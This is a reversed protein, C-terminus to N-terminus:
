DDGAAVSCEIEDGIQECAGGDALWPVLEVNLDDIIVRADVSELESWPPPSNDIEIDWYWHKDDSRGKKKVEPQWCDLADAPVDTSVSDGPYDIDVWSQGDFKRFGSLANE